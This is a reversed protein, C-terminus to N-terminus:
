QMKWDPYDGEEPGLRGDTEDLARLMKKLAPLNLAEAVRIAEAVKWREKSWILRLGTRSLSLKESAEDFGIRKIEKIAAIKLINAIKKETQCEDNLNVSM